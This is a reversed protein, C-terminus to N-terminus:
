ILDLVAAAYVVADAFTDFYQDALLEDEHFHEWREPVTIFWEGELTEYVQVGYEADLQQALRVIENEIENMTADERLTPDNDRM